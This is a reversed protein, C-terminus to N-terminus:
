WLLKIYFLIFWYRESLVIRKSKHNSKDDQVLSIAPQPLTNIRQSKPVNSACAVYTTFAPSNIRCIMVICVTGNHGIFCRCKAHKHRAGFETVDGHYMFWRRVGSIVRYRRVFYAILTMTMRASRFGMQERYRLWRRFDWKKGRVKAMTKRCNERQAEGATYKATKVHEFFLAFFLVVFLPAGPEDPASWRSSPLSPYPPSFLSWQTSSLNRLPTSPIISLCGTM